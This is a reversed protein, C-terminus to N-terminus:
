KFLEKLKKDALNMAKASDELVDPPNIERFLDIEADGLQPMMETLWERIRDKKVGRPPILEHRLKTGLGVLSLVMWRLEEHASTTAVYDVNCLDNVMLLYHEELDRSNSQVTSAWRQAMYSNIYKTALKREEDDLNSWFARDRLDVARMARDVYARRENHDRNAM